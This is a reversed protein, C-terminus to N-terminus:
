SAETTGSTTAYNSYPLSASKTRIRYFYETEATLGTNTYTTLTSNYIETADSFDEDTAKEVIYGSAGSVADWSLVLKTDGDTEDPEAVFNESAAIRTQSTESEDTYASDAKTASKAQVRYFYETTEELPGADTTSTGTNNYIEVVDSFDSSSARQVIYGTAGSVSAWALGMKIVEATYTPTLTLTAPAAIQDVLLTPAEVPGGSVIAEMKLNNALAWSTIEKISIVENMWERFLHIEDANDSAGIFQSITCLDHNLSISDTKLTVDVTIGNTFHLDIM